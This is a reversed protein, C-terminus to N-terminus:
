CWADSGSDSPRACCYFLSVSVVGVCKLFSNEGAATIGTLGTAVLGLRILEYTPGSGWHGIRRAWRARLSGVRDSVLVLFWLWFPLVSRLVHFAVFNCM